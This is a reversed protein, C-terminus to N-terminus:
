REPTVRWIAGTRPPFEHPAQGDRIRALNVRAVGYDVIYMAGDPGFKVDFPRELARGRAGQESATGQQVPHECAVADPAGCAARGRRAGPGQPLGGPVAARAASM